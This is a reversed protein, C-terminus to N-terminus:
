GGKIQRKIRGFVNLPAKGFTATRVIGEGSYDMTMATLRTQMVVGWARNQVTVMDGVFYDRFYQLRDDLISCQFSEAPRYNEAEILAYRRLENYEEGAVPTDASIALHQERRFLGQAEDEGDRTYLMTLAEDEFEAGSMTAYFVNRADQISHQYSQSQATGRSIDFVVRPRDSQLGSRDVGQVVDFIYANKELNPVIDYGLGAADALQGLVEDLPQHRSAYKDQAVGRGQDPAIALGVVRRSLQFPNVMNVDVYHKMVAETTGQVADYGHSGMQGSAQYPMTIRHAVLGKLDTGSVTLTEGDAAANYVVSSILGWFLRDILVLQGVQIKEAYKAGMPMSFSFYGPASLNTTMSINKAMQTIGVRGFTPRQATVPEFIRIEIGM